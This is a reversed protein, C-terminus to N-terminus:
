STERYRTDRPELEGILNGDPILTCLWPMRLVEASLALFKRWTPRLGPRTTM